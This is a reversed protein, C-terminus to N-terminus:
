RPRVRVVSALMILVRMGLSAGIASRYVCLLVKISIPLITWSQRQRHQSASILSKRVSIQAKRVSWKVVHRHSHQPNRKRKETGASVVARRRQM